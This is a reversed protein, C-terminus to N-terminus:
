RIAGTQNCRLASPAAYSRPVDNGSQIAFRHGSHAIQEGSKVVKADSLDDFERQHAAAFLTHDPKFEFRSDLKGLHAPGM